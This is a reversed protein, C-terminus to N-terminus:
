FLYRQSGLKDSSIHANSDILTVTQGLEMYIWAAFLAPAVLLLLYHRRHRAELPDFYYLRFDAINGRSLIKFENKFTFLICLVIKPCFRDSHRVLEFTTSPSLSQLSSQLSQVSTHKPLYKYRIDDQKCQPRRLIQWVSYCNM